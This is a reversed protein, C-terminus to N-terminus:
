TGGTTRRNDLKGGHDRGGRLTTSLILFGYTTAILGADVSLGTHLHTDGRHVRSAFYLGSFCVFNCVIEDPIFPEEHLQPLKIQEISDQM